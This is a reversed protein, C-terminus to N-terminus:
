FTYLADLDSGCGHMDALDGLVSELDESQSESCESDHEFDQETESSPGILVLVAIRHALLARCCCTM